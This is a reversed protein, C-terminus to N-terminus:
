HDVTKASTLKGAAFQLTAAAILADAFAQEKAASALARAKQANMTDTLTALGNGYSKEAADDAVIAAQFLATAAQYRALSANLENYATTVEQVARHVIQVLEQEAQTHQSRAIESQISRVGADFLQWEFNLFVTVNPINLTHLDTDDVRQGLLATGATGLLNLHPLYAARSKSVQAATSPLRAYAARLDPRTALASKLYTEVKQEDRSPLDRSPATAVQLRALPDIGLTSVLAAFVSVESAQAQTLNYEAQAVERRVEAVEVATAVGNSFRAEAAKAIARTRELAERHVEVQARAASSRFYARAVEFIIRQHEATFLANAAVSLNEAATVGAGRGFDLVRWRVFLFPLFQFADVGVHGSSPLQPIPFSASPAIDSPAAGISAQGLNPLPFFLHQYGGIALATITPFYETKAMGVALAAQRAKEWGIRTDPNASEAVDILEPLTYLHDPEIAAGPQPPLSPPAEAPLPWPERSSRPARGLYTSACGALLLACAARMM